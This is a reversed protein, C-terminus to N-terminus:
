GTSHSGHGTQLESREERWVMRHALVGRELELTVEVEGGVQVTEAEVLEPTPLVM